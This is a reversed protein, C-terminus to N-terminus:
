LKFLRYYYYIGQLNYQIGNPNGYDTKYSANCFEDFSMILHESVKTPPSLGGKHIDWKWMSYNLGKMMIFYEM